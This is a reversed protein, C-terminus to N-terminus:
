CILFSFISYSLLFSADLNSNVKNFQWSRSRRWPQRPKVPCPLDTLVSVDRLCRLSALWWEAGKRWVTPDRTRRWSRRTRRTSPTPSSCPDSTVRRTRQVSPTLDILSPPDPCERSWDLGDQEQHQAEAAQCILRLDTRLRPESAEQPAGPDSFCLTRLPSAATRHPSARFDFHPLWRITQARFTSPSKLFNCVLNREVPFHKKEPRKSWERSSERGSCEDFPQRCIYCM